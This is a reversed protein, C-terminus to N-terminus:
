SRTAIPEALDGSAIRLTAAKADAVPRVIGRGTLLAILLGLLVSAAAAAAIAALVMRHQARNEQVSHQADAMTAVFAERLLGNLSQHQPGLEGLVTKADDMRWAAVYELLTKELASVRESLEVVRQMAERAAGVRSGDAVDALRNAVEAHAVGNVQLRREVAAREDVTYGLVLDRLLLARASGSEQMRGLADLMAIHQTVLEDAQRQLRELQAVGLAAVALLLVLVAGFGLALRLAIGHRRIASGVRM